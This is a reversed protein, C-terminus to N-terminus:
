ETAPLNKAGDLIVINLKRMSVLLIWWACTVPLNSRPVQRKDKVDNQRTGIRNGYKVLVIRLDLAAM